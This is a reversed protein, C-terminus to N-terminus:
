AADALEMCAQAVRRTADPKAVERARLAMELLKPRDLSELERALREPTLEPQPVLLAAGRGALFRANVTQHDDVAHPFPVLVSALGACALEAITTAGARAVVLDAEAYRAAMDDIFPLLTAEVGARAYHGRLAELHDRGSQHVVV